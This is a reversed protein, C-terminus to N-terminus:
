MLEVAFDSFLIGIRGNDLRYGLDFKDALTEMEVRVRGNLCSLLYEVLRDVIAMESRIQDLGAARQAVGVSREWMTTYQTFIPVKGRFYLESFKLKDIVVNGHLLDNRQNVLSHYERCAESEFDVNKEFGICTLPLSQIRVDIPQRLANERLRDVRKLEPKMLVYLLLNVFAEAMVPLMSRVGFCMGIARSHKDALGNWRGISDESHIPDDMDPTIGNETEIELGSIEELLKEVASRIRQYPNVFEVWHELSGRVKGMASGMRAFDGKLQEILRLKETEGLKSGSVSIETRYNLGLFTVIRDASQTLWEWHILNNSDDRRLFNQIGNPPGFRAELYCYLDVPRVENKLIWKTEFKPRNTQQIRALFEPAQLVALGDLFNEPLGM